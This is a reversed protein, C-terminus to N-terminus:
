TTKGSCGESVMVCLVNQESAANLRMVREKQRGGCVDKLDLLQPAVQRRPSLQQFGGKLKRVSPQRGGCQLPTARLIPTVFHGGGCRGVGRMGAAHLSM